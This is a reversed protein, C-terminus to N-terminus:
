SFSVREERHFVPEPLATAPRGTVLTAYDDTVVPAFRVCHDSPTHSQAVFDMFDRLGLSEYDYAANILATFKDMIEILDAHIGTRKRNPKSHDSMVVLSDGTAGAIRKL